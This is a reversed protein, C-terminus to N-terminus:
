CSELVSLVLLRLVSSPQQQMRWFGLRSDELWSHCLWQLYSGFTDCRFDHRRKSFIIGFYKTGINGTRHGTYRTAAVKTTPTLIPLSSAGSAWCIVSWHHVSPQDWEWWFVIGNVLVLVVVLLIETFKSLSFYLIIISRFIKSGHTVSVSIMLQNISGQQPGTWHGTDPYWAVSWNIYCLQLVWVVSQSVWHKHPKM